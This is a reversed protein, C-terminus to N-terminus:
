GGAQPKKLVTLNAIRWQGDDSKKFDVRLTATIFKLNKADTGRQGQMALLMSAENTDASLVASSVAWYDNTTAGAKEVAQQQATLQPRYGDTVLTQAHAFDDKITDVTYSLMQEVIRPGQEAIQAKAQDVALDHRYPGFYGLGALSACLVAAAVFAAGARRRPDRQPPQVSHVETRLLLDAFTRRRSDWLPWLWGIFVAATDLLHAADRLLLRLLGAMAGDGRHVVRIAFVSRGLTWGTLSPMLWRNAALGIVVLVAAVTYVWWAVGYPTSTLALLTLSALVTVGPVVDIALAGARALWGAPRQVPVLVTKAALSTSKARDAKAGPAPVPARQTPMADLAVATGDASAAPDSKTLDVPAARTVVASTRKEILGLKSSLADAFDQCRPFRDNPDKALAIALVSDLEALESHSDALKPPPSNLHQGIVVAPNAHPFPLSGSLLHFATAAL